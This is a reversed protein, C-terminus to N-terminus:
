RRLSVFDVQVQDEFIDGFGYVASGAVEVLELSHHWHEFDLEINILEESRQGVDMRLANTM